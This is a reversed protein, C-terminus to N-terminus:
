AFMMQLVYFLVLAGLAALIYSQVRGTQIERLTAGFWTIIRAVLNVLGDVVRNDTLGSAWSGIVTGKAVGDVTADIAKLDFWASIRSFALTGAIATSNYFEDFYWKNWLFKHLGKFRTALDDASIKKWYYVAMSLVIGIGAAFISLAMAWNHASKAAESAHEASIALAGAVEPKRVLKEFWDGYGGVISLAALVILPATMKLPSEHAHTHVKSLRPTGFFTLFILRFMYFATIGACLLLTGFIVMHMPNHSTLAAELASALIADKSFFGSLGPVGSIALTAVFMTFFTIPMKQKLGGMNRMDQPDTDHDHLHHLSHHMAHIVSGSALFLLAKFFAHTMLHFLGASYGGSSAGGVGLSAIMYGLQSITSYALVKKIDMQTIAITAAIFATITGILGIFLLADSTYILFTRGVLYVGAAVMTAAHILASVPTPGEMADPLWVHLPFQASKGIAGFFILIGAATLLGGSLKGEGISQFVEAFNLTGLTAFIIMIGIFMGIDGLRTTIFAKIAADSASKKEYWHGILLYSGLGVLEWFIYIGMFGDVLVLGLMSFSFLALFAFYRSYRVDGHMYDISFLHVLSSILTVVVLMVATLNDFLIGFGLKFAGIQIWEYSRTINLNPDNASLVKGFVNIALILSAFIAVTPVWDGNRPLRKGFFIQIIFAALPLLWIILSQDIINDV